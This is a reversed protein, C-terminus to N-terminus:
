TNICCLLDGSDVSIVVKSAIATNSVGIFHKDLSGKKLPWKLGETSIGHVPGNLPILSVTQGLKAAFEVRLQIVFLQETETELFVKGPYRSLLILNGLTHDTRGGLAGFVAIRETQPCIVHQIALELDTEDKHAPYHEKPVLNFADLVHPAISDLDGLLLDPVLGMQHCHNAGGDVAIVLAYHSIKEKAWALNAM